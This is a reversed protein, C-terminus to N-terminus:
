EIVQCRNIPKKARLHNAKSLSKSISWMRLGGLGLFIPLAVIPEEQMSYIGAGLFVGDLITVGLADQENPILWLPLGANLIGTTVLLENSAIKAREKTKKQMLRSIEEKEYTYENITMSHILRIDISRDGKVNRLTICSGSFSSIRGQIQEGFTLAVHAKDGVEIPKALLANIGLYLWLM